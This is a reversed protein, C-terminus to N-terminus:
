VARARKCPMRSNRCATPRHLALNGAGTAIDFAPLYECRQDVARTNGGATCQLFHGGCKDGTLRRGGQRGALNQGLLM